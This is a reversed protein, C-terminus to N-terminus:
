CHDDEGALKIQFRPDREPIFDSWETGLEVPDHDVEAADHEHVATPESRDQVRLAGSIGVATDEGEAAARWLHLTYELQGADVLAEAEFVSWPARHETGAPFM